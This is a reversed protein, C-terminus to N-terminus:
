ITNHINRLDKLAESIIKTTPFNRFKIHYALYLENTVKFWPFIIKVNLNHISKELMYTPLVSIGAGLEIAVLISHLDPLVHKIQMHPRKKFHERWFRRIIPLDSGYSIWDQSCLWAEFQETDECSIEKFNNPAVLVFEEQIYHIYEIGPKSIKKSTIIMDLKEEMLLNLIDTAVGFTANIRFPFKELHPALNERFYEPATGIMVMPVTLSTDSKFKRTTEELAEILPVVQTYLEKGKETPVMRRTTRTFLKEGLDAELAALHQSMAPQTMLRTRAAESVSRYKYISIFSRYWEFDM